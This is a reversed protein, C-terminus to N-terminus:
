WINVRDAPALYLKQGPQVNFAAYWADNNRVTAARWPGPSHENTLIQRRLAEDRFKSRNEQGYSLFFQQDGTLGDRLPAPKGGLSRLYADHAAAVGAVDAINEGLTLKGNLHLDPFALYADYQKVLKASTATFHAFDAKTWWMKLAGSADFLAGQNDFSHSIEHGIVTGMAGYNVAPDASPDFFLGGMIAAPFNLGNQVPLNVANVTQPTMSWEKRDVPQGLKAVNRQYEFLAARDANGLADGKVIQLRSYDRWQDPYGVGIWLTNLKELAKAKTEPSMWTLGQLRTRYAAILNDVMAQAKAKADASFYREVYIKGVAWGLAANTQDVARKWRERLQPTGALTKGNFAFDEDVFAKPLYAADDDIAHFTLYDKWDQVPQSAVLASLGTIATPQWAIYDTQAGLGSAQFFGTWDVGPAKRDFDARTWPNNAKEVDRSDVGTAHVRAIRTELAMIRAAKADSDAVGALKLLASVHAQYAKRIAAM